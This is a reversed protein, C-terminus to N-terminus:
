RPGTRLSSRTVGLEIGTPGSAVTTESVNQKIDAELGPLKVRALSPLLFSLLVLGALIPTLSIVMTTTVRGSLFFGAWLGALVATALIALIFGGLVTSQSRRLDKRILDANRSAEFYNQDLTLCQQFYRLASSRYALRTPPADVMDGLKFRAVGAYFYGEPEKSCLVTAEVAATLGQSYFDVRQSSDGREIMVRALAMFLPYVTQKDCSKRWAPDASPTWGFQRLGDRLIREAELSDGSHLRAMAAGQIADASVPNIRLVADFERFADAPKGTQDFLAGLEIHPREDYWDSKIAQTLVEQADSYRGMQVYLAGLDTRGSEGGSVEIAKKLYSESSRIRRRRYAIVGLCNYSSSNGRNISLARQCLTDGEDLKEDSGQRILAWALNTLAVDNYESKALASRFYSEASGYEQRGFSVAGYGTLVDFSDPDTENAKGLAALAEDWRDQDSFMWGRETWLRASGPNAEVAELSRREAEEWRQSSRLATIRWALADEYFPDAALAKDFAALAEDWRRRDSFVWGRETWLPASGPSAEVAELSRGEAEEWRQSLRLATVRWALADEYSPDVALAKNFAALAEDWRRQDSFVWGRETWLSTSGPNAEVAELSRREAEEWRRALRPVTIGWVLADEYSPDVALAKNFAALAEDWRRQDSFVWGRETWLRTSGPYAEVAELSRREAEDWRRSSRLVRIRWVLADEYSTDAPVAKVLAKDFAALAEPYRKRDSFVWGRETWLRTSGPYAEVAELSRRGAEEWRRSLRLATIRAGLADEYSPDAALAKDLADLAEDWRRQDSFVSGRETWLRASDPSAEVAELSRRGAEEWRKLTRLVTIRWALADEYSADEAQARDFADLAEPYRKRYFFVKGRETWLSASGPDAEVAELSRREAEEWQRSLRLVRIRWAMADKYFPDAALAKDLADLAETYRKQDSFVWGRETWLRASAPYAAVAELSRREAEEWRRSLRLAAIRAALADEYSPDVALARDFADLAEPYRKQGSFMRGRETWLGASGPSAEVAELSRREAEEWRQSLRLAAIRAALADEYSPDAALARDFADLAEDCRRQDSFVSGRETWLRASDPSAEVAELSRREAEEWRKLVRLVTIRVVTTDEDRGGASLAKDFAELAGKWNGQGVCVWGRETWLRASDPNAEVAELSRREAEEWRQSFRLATIRWALADEYAPDAALAKDFADLAEELHGQNVQSLGEDFYAQKSLQEPNM